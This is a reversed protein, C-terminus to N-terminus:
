RRGTPGGARNRETNFYYGRDIDDATGAHGGAVILFANALGAALGSPALARWTRVVDFHPFAALHPDSELVSAVLPCLRASWPDALLAEPLIVRPLKYDPFPFWWREAPLGAANLIHRLAERGFTVPGDDAYRGEIGFMPVGLHDERSGALYKLGFQNEIALVLVGDPKLFRRAHRIMAVVPDGEGAPFYQRAYKVVGILLVADFAAQPAVHDFADAVVQM